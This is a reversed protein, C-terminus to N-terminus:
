VQLSGSALSPSPPLCTPHGRHSYFSICYPTSSSQSANTLVCTQQLTLLFHSVKGTGAVDSAEGLTITFAVFHFFLTPKNLAYCSPASFSVNVGRTGCAALCASLLRVTASFRVALLRRPQPALLLPLFLGLGQPGTWRM